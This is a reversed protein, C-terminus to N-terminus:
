TPDTLGRERLLEEAHRVDEATDISCGAFAQDECGTKVVKIKYGHELVRLQELSEERELPTPKLQTLTRLFDRRYVYIGIHDYVPIGTKMRPYPILSRSFYLAFENLDTIVKVVAPNEYDEQHAIPYRSTGMPISPDALLADVIEEIMQPHVFPMDGQINVVIDPKIIGERELGAVAEEVRDTGSPHDPSTMIGRGGLTEVEDVIRPDDTAVCVFDLNKCKKSQEYVRRILSKGSIPILPKGPLRTSGYRSPIVGLVSM